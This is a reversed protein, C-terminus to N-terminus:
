SNLWRWLLYLIEFAVVVGAIVVEWFLITLDLAMFSAFAACAFPVFYVFGWKHDNLFFRHAGTVGFLVAILVAAIYNRDDTATYVNGTRYMLDGHYEAMHAVRGQLDQGVKM